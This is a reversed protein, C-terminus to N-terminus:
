ICRMRNIEQGFVEFYDEERIGRRLFLRLTHIRM